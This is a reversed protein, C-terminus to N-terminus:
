SFYECLKLKCTSLLAKSFTKNIYDFDDSNEEFFTEQDIFVLLNNLKVHKLLILTSLQKGKEFKLVISFYEQSKESFRTNTAFNRHM